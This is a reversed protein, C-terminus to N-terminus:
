QLSKIYEIISDIEEDTVGLGTPMLEGFGEVLKVYPDNISERIYDDDVTASGGGELPEQSGYIGKWSPGVLVTGDASHCAICGYSESLQQGKAASPPGGAAAGGPAVPAPTSIVLAALTPAPTSTPQPTPEPCVNEGHEGLEHDFACPVAVDPLRPEGGLTPKVATFLGMLALGVMVALVMGAIFVWFFFKNDFKLHMYFLIVIAFKFGSLVFLIVTTGIPSAERLGVSDLILVFEVITIVFLLVAIFIYQKLSPHGGGGHETEHTTAM